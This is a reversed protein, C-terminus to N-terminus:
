SRFVDTSALLFRPRKIWRDITKQDVDFELVTEEGPILRGQGIPAVPDGEATFLAVFLASRQTEPQIRATIYLSGHSTQYFPLEKDPRKLGKPNNAELIELEAPQLAELVPVEICLVAPRREHIEGEGAGHAVQRPGLEVSQDIAILQSIVHKLREFMGVAPVLGAVAAPRAPDLGPRDTMGVPVLTPIEKRAWVLVEGARWSLSRGASKDHQLRELATTLETKVSALVKRDGETIRNEVPRDIDSVAGGTVLDWFASLAAEQVDPGSARLQSIITNLATPGGIKRLASVACVRITPNVEKQRTLLAQIARASEEGGWEGIALLAKGLVEATISPELYFLLKDIPQPLRGSAALAVTGRPLTEGRAWTGLRHLEELIEILSEEEGGGIGKLETLLTSAQNLYETQM